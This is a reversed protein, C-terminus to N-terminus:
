WSNTKQFFAHNRNHDSNRNWSRNRSAHPCLISRYASNSTRQLFPREAITGPGWAHSSAPLARHHPATLCAIALRPSVFTTLRLSALGVSSLRLATLRSSTWPPCAHVRHACRRGSQWRTQRTARARAPVRTWARTREDVLAVSNSCARLLSRHRRPSAEWVVVRLTVDLSFTSYSQRLYNCSDDVLVCQCLKVYTCMHSISLSFSFSFPNVGFVFSRLSNSRHIRSVVRHRVIPLPAPLLLRFACRLSTFLIEYAGSM